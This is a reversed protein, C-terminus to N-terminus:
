DVVMSHIDVVELLVRTKGVQVKRVLRLTCQLQPGHPIYSCVQIYQCDMGLMYEVLVLLQDMCAREMHCTCWIHLLYQLVHVISMSVQSRLLDMIGQLICDPIYLVTLSDLGILKCRIYIHPDMHQLM